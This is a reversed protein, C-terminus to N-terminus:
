LDGNQVFLISFADSEHRCLLVTKNIIGFFIKVNTARQQTLILFLLNNVVMKHFDLRM